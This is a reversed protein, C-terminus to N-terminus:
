GVVIDARVTPPAPRAAVRAVLSYEGPEAELAGTLRFRWEEGPALPREGLVAAFMRGSSWRYRERGDATLVIDGQQASPFTLTRPAGGRNAVTFTWEAPEGARPPDPAVDVLIELGTAPDSARMRRRIIVAWARTKPPAKQASLPRSV